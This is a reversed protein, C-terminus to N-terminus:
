DKFMKNWVVPGQGIIIVIIYGSTEKKFRGKSQKGATGLYRNCQDILDSKAGSMKSNEVENLCNLLSYICKFLPDCLFTVYFFYELKHM